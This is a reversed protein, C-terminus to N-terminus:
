GTMLAVPTTSWVFRPRAGIGAAHRPRRVGPPRRAVGVELDVPDGSTAPGSGATGLRHQQRQGAGFGREHDVVTGGGHEQRQRRQGLALLHQHGAASSISIPPSNLIGSMM